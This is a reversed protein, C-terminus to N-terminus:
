DTAKTYKITAFAAYASYDATTKIHIGDSSGWVSVVDNPISWITSAVGQCSVCTGFNEIGADVVKTGNNPLSGCNVLKVYVPKDQYRETTLYEVGLEMPPTVYAWPSFTGEWSGRVAMYPLNDGWYYEQHVYGGSYAKVFLLGWPAPVNDAQVTFTYFGSQMCTDADTVTDMGYYQGWGFGAPAAGIMEATPRQAAALIGDAGLTAVGNPIALESQTILGAPSCAVTVELGESVTEQLYFRLVAPSGATITVPGKLRYVKYLIEGEDPDQAYVGLETLSYDEGALAAALTVPLVVSNGKRTPVGAALVQRAQALNLSTAATQGGGAEVRTITLGVGTLLKASLALGKETFFGHIEM